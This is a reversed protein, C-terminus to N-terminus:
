YDETNYSKLLMRAAEFILEPNDSDMARDYTDIYQETWNDLAWRLAENYEEAGGFMQQVDSVLAQTPENMPPLQQQEQFQQQQDKQQPSVEDRQLMQMHQRLQKAEEVSQAQSNYFSKLKQAADIAAEIDNSDMISDYKDIVEDPLNERAWEIMANYSYEGGVSEKVNEADNATLMSAPQPRHEFLQEDFNVSNPNSPDDDFAYQHYSNGFDDTFVYGEQERNFQEIAAMKGDPTSATGHDYSVVEEGQENVVIEPSFTMGYDPM